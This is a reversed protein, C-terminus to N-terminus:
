RWVRGGRIGCLSRTPIGCHVICLPLVVSCAPRRDFVQLAHHSRALVPEADGFIRLEGLAGVDHRRHAVAVELDGLIIALEGLGFLCTRALAFAGCSWRRLILRASACRPACDGRGVSSRWELKVATWRTPSCCTGRRAAGLATDPLRM